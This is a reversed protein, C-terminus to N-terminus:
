QNEMIACPRTTATAVELPRTRSAQHRFAHGCHGVIGRSGDPLEPVDVAPGVSPFDLICGNTVFCVIYRSNVIMM